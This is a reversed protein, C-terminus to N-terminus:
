LKRAIAMIEWEDLKVAEKNWAGPTGGYVGSITFGVQQLMRVFEAATYYRERVTIVREGEDTKITQQTFEMLAVPDFRGAKIDEDTKLRLIRSANLVTTIFIGGPKIANYINTLIRIDHEFPDDESGLLSLSGECLCIAADFENKFSISQADSETLKVNVGANQAAIRAQQLMAPSLDIGTMKYGERALAVSHRGTGCGVDLIRSGKPLQFEDVLFRVENATNQTFVEQEYHSATEDNFFQKWENM